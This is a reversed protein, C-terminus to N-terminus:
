FGCYVVTTKLPAFWPVDENNVLYEIAIEKPSQNGYELQFCECFDEYSLEQFDACIAIVDMQIQATEDELEELYDFIEHLASLTFQNSYGDTMQFEAVFMARTVQIYM